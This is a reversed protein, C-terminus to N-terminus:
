HNKEISAIKKVGTLQAYGQGAIYATEENLDDPYIGRIDYSKFVKPNIKQM